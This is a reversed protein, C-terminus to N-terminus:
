EILTKKYCNEGSMLKLLLEGSEIANSSIFLVKSSEDPYAADTAADEIHLVQISPCYLVRLKEKYAIYSLIDEEMFMFTQNYIGRYRSVYLPTFILCSGHLVVGEQATDWSQCDIRDQKDTRQSLKRGLVIMRHAPYWLRTKILFNKLKHRRLRKQIDKKQLMKTRLPSQYCDRTTSYISPGIIHPSCDEYVTLMKDLFDKQEILTDNGLFIIFDAGLEHKAYQYGVNNGKAYGLNSENKIFHINSLHAFKQELFEVSDNPSNNDVIVVELNKYAINRLISTVCESTEQYTIYHLVVFAVKM